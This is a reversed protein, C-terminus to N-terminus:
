RKTKNISLSAFPEVLVVCPEKGPYLSTSEPFLLLSVLTLDM